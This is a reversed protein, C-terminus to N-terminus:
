QDQPHPSPDNSPAIDNNVVVSVGNRLKMQGGTVVLDGESIGKVVAVQDGRTLGTSVFIQQAVLKDNTDKKLIFATTGYPNFSLVSQPLSIFKEAKGIQVEVRAFMGPLLKHDPNLVSARVQLNRTDSSVKPDIASIKGKFLTNKQADVSISVSQGLSVQHALNEPISFDAVIFDLNQLTVVAMGPNVYQGIDIARIGIQGSFPAKLIKQNVLANQQEVLAKANDFQARDYDLTAQSIANLQFQKEDRQLTLEALKEEAELAHLRALDDEARLHILVKGASVYDGSNFDYSSVIGPVQFSLDAGKESRLTAVSHIVNQWDQSSAEIASVTQPVNGMSAFYKMMMKHGFVKYGTMLGAIILLISIMKVMPKTM